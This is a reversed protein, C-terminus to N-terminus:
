CAGAASDSSCGRLFQSLLSHFDYQQSSCIKFFQLFGLTHYLTCVRQKQRSM